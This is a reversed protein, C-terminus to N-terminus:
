LPITFRRKSHPHASVVAIGMVGLDVTAAVSSHEEIERWANRMGPSWSIDDFVVVAEESLYPLAQAFYALLADRDHHGDNFLFDIPQAAELAASLTQHFPGTVITANTLELAGLTERAIRAIEPSGELSTLRGTGNLKLAAAQYSASIGVCTGLELSSQPRLQRILTFLMLAWFPPKSAGAVRSVQATSEVGYRMEEASRQSGASGAGYDIVPIVETSHLLAGRRDEIRELIPAETRTSHAALAQQLGRGIAAVSPSEARAIEDIASRARWVRFTRLAARAVSKAKMDSPM